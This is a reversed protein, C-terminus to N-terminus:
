CEPKSDTTGPQAHLSCRLYCVRCLPRYMTDAGILEVKTSNCTRHSFLAERTRCGGCFARLKSITDALPVLELWTGFPRRLFDGDLGAAHVRKGHEDVARQIWVAADPFFQAENVLLVDAAQLEADPVDALTAVTRCSSRRGDHSVVSGPQVGRDADGSYNIFLSSVGCVEYQKQLDLLRSTKGSWMPGLILELYGTPPEAIGNM